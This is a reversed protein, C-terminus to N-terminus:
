KHEVYNRRLTRCLIEGGYGFRFLMVQGDKIMNFEPFLLKYSNQIETLIKQHRKQFEDKGNLIWRLFFLTVATMPQMDVGISSFTLWIRELAQGGKVFSLNDMDDVTLLAVGSSNVINKYSQLAVLRGLGAKNVINMIKWTKTIKLFIDGVPGAELNKLPFGDRKLMAEKDSFRIMSMLHEHLPRHETRIRDAQYILRAIKKLDSTETIFHLKAEPIQSISAKIQQIISSAVPQKKYLTRNTHRKWIFNSLIDKKAQEPILKIAALCNDSNSEPLYDIDAKIKCASAALKMNELVAGCSIISAIQNVNFFSIDRKKDIYLRIQNPQFSFKWPQINDGSPAQIGADIIYKIVNEPITNLNSDMIPIEPSKIKFHVKNRELIYKVIKLKIKQIPNKNGGLLRGKRLKQIYPDYQFYNPVSKIKGKKLIIKVAETAAMGSCIQCGINLSPGEKSDFDVKKLNMYKIHTPRPSLGLAFSLYKDKDEMDETINFYKDFGMGDPSFVLMASSFGMPGATIVYIGKEFARKFLIRRIDFNFFDLGDIVVDVGDLFRDLNSENIGDEFLSIELYPNISLAHEKMVELKSRGFDPVRAGFQRNINAVEFIDFDAIHFKGVGTRAMTILHVGGVGGMGPIAVKAQSLKKQELKTLLGINRAFAKSLYEEKNTIGFKKLIDFMSDSGM